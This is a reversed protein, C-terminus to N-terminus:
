KSPCSAIWSEISEVLVLRTGRINGPRRLMKSKILGQNMLVYVQSRSMPYLNPVQAPKLYKPNDTMDSLRM